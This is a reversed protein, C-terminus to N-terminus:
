TQIEKLRVTLQYNYKHHRLMIGSPYLKGNKRRYEYYFVSWIRRWGKYYRKEVLLNDAGAFIYEMVGTESPQRFVIKKKKKYIKAEPDPISDFYIRRIDDAVAQAFNGPFSAGEFAFKCEVSNDNGALEFLKIGAHNLCVIKFLKQLSDIDTYGIASFKHRRYQFVITSVIKFKRPLTSAFQERIAAPQVKSVSVYQVKKFPVSSCGTSCLGVLGAFLLYLAISKKTKAM